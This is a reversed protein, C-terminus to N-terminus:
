KFYKIYIAIASFRNKNRDTQYLNFFSILFLYVETHNDNMYSGGGCATDEREYTTKKEKEAKVTARAGDWRERLRLVPCKITATFADRLSISYHM